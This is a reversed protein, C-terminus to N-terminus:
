RRGRLLGFPRPTWPLARGRHLGSHPPNNAWSPGAPPLLTAHFGAADGDCLAQLVAVSHTPDLRGEARHYAYLGGIIAQSYDTSVSTQMDAGAELLLAHLFAANPPLAAAWTQPQAVGARVARALGIAMNGPWMRSLSVREADRLALAHSALLGDDTMNDYLVAHEPLFRGDGGLPFLGPFATCLGLAQVQAVANPEEARLQALCARLATIWACPDRREAPSRYPQDATALRQFALPAGDPAEEVAALLLGVAQTSIDVGLVLRTSM